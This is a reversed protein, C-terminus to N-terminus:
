RLNINVLVDQKAKKYFEIVVSSSSSPIVRGIDFQFFRYKSKNKRNDLIQAKKAKGTTDDVQYATLVGRRTDAYISPREYINVIENRPHDLYLFYHQDNLQVHQFSMSGRGRSGIQRKPLKRMWALSGDANIKTILMDYYHYTTRTYSAGSTSTNTSTVIFDVEGIIILSNDKQVIIKKLKLDNMEARGKRDARAIRSQQGANKYQTLIEIPFEYHLHKLLKAEPDIKFLFIGDPEITRSERKSYFGTCIVQGDVGAYLWSSEIQHEDLKIPITLYSADILNFKLIELQYNIVADEGRGILDRRSSKEPRVKTLIYPSNDKDLHYDIVDAQRKKHPFILEQQAISILDRGLVNCYAFRQDGGGMRDARFGLLMLNGDEGRQQAVIQSINYGELVPIMDGVLKCNLPDVQKAFLKLNRRGDSYDAQLLYIRGHIRVVDYLYTLNPLIIKDSRKREKLTNLDFRQLTIKNNREKISLMLDNSPDSFYFKRQADIVKYPTGVKFAPTQAWLLSSCLLCSLLLGILKM